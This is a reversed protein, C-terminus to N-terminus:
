GLVPRNNKQLSFLNVCALRKFCPTDWVAPVYPVDGLASLVDGNVVWSCTVVDSTSDVDALSTWLSCTPM